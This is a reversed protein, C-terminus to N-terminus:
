IIIPETIMVRNGTGSSAVAALLGLEPAWVIGNWLNGAASARSTWNIGDPSTMVRRAGTRSVAVLLGLEPAWTVSYWQNGAAEVGLTWNIGDPSTMVFETSLGASVAVLLGLEPAWVISQWSGQAAATRSTWNIGDPSTMVQQAATGARAVAVLLGLEPAWAIASWLNNVAETRLTWNIGDPSTMVKQTGGSGVAVLLGLEPAWVIDDWGTTPPSRLTWNIGDPSTMVENGAVSSAVAVLLGLEPAWAINEWSNDAASTRSTWDIGNPSTMVRNGTGSSAVAALLGLEPAWVIGNWSEDAASSQSSFSNVAINGALAGIGRSKGYVELNGGIVQDDEIFKGRDFVTVTNEDVNNSSDVYFFALARYDEFDSLDAVGDPYWGRETPSYNFLYDWVAALKEDEKGARLFAKSAGDGTAAGVGSLQFTNAGTNVVTVRYVGDALTTDGTIQVADGVALSGVNAVTFNPNLFTYSASIQTAIEDKLLPLIKKNTGDHQLIHWADQLTNAQVGPGYNDTWAYTIATGAADLAVGKIMASFDAALKPPTGAATFEAQGEIGDGIVHSMKELTRLVDSNTESEAVDNVAGLYKKIAAFMGYFFDTVTEAKVQSGTDDGPNNKYKGESFGGSPAILNTVITSIKRM